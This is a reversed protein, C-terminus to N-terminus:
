EDVNWDSILLDSISLIQEKDSSNDKLIISVQKFLKEYLKIQNVITNLLRSNIEMVTKLTEITPRRPENDSEEKKSDATKSLIFYKLLRTRMQSLKEDSSKEIICAEALDSKLIKCKELQEIASCVMDGMVTELSSNVLLAM